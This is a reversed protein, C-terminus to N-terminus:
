RRIIDPDEFTSITFVCYHLWIEVSYTVALVAREYVEVVKDVSELRGEHDAYKKWYGFCLPFEALFADYVKRIKVINNEAVKETEEILATWSNFDLCNAKVMNWLRDEEASNVTLGDEVQQEAVHEGDATAALENEIVGAPQYSPLEAVSGDMSDYGATHTPVNPSIEHSVFSESAGAAGNDGGCSKSEHHLGLMTDQAITSADHGHLNGDGINSGDASAYVAAESSVHALEGAGSEISSDTATHEATFQGSSPYVTVSSSQSAMPESVEM